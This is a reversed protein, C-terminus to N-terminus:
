PKKPLVRARVVQIGNIWAERIQDHKLGIVIEHNSKHRASDFQTLLHQEHAFAQRATDWLHYLIPQYKLGGLQPMASHNFTKARQKYDFAWGIKHATPSAGEVAMVYTHASFRRMQMIGPRMTEAPPPSRKRARGAEELRAMASATPMLMEVETRRFSLLKSAEDATLPVIGMASDTYFKRESIAELRPKEDFRWARINMLGYPWRYEGKDFDESRTRLPYDLSMVPQSTPEMMGLVRGREEELTPESLTGVLIVLDGPQLLERARDRWGGVSFQLPGVPPAFGWVKTLYIAM